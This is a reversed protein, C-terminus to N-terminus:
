VKGRVVYGNEFRVKGIQSDIKRTQRQIATKSNQQCEKAESRKLLEAKFCKLKAEAEQLVSEDRVNRDKCLDECVLNVEFVFGNIDKNWQIVRAREKKQEEVAEEGFFLACM